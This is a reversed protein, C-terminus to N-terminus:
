LVFIWALVVAVGLPFYFLVSSMSRFLSWLFQEVVYRSWFFCKIDSGTPAVFYLDTMKVDSGHVKGVFKSYSDRFRRELGLYYSDLVWLIVTPLLAILAYQAGKNRTALVLIASVLTVCWLKCSRRNESMRQILGSLITLHTLVAPSNENLPSNTSM